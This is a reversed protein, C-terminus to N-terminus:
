SAERMERELWRAEEWPPLGAYATQRPYGPWTNSALCSRWVDLAYLVKKEALLLADPGLSIVSLAYPPFTEQVAYRFPADQETLAAVARRYWAAQLDAGRDFMARSWAEPNASGSTTKYDDIAVGASSHRLWDLRARCWLGDEQWIVTQEPKGGTFMWRGGDAHQDLQARAAVVMAQVDVWRAALIPLQGAAYAADRAEQAAKTRFDKADVIAIRDASGELLLAHAITGLDFEERKEDVADPNLRPHAQRAHAPSAHCLLNAISCSLSPEPCPDAHYAAAPLDYIGPADITM